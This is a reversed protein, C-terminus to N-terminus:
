FVKNIKANRDCDKHAIRQKPILFEIINGIFGTLQVVNFNNTDSLEIYKKCYHCSAVPVWKQDKRIHGKKNQPKVIGM